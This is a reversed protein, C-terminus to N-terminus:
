DFGFYTQGLFKAHLDKMLKVEFDVTNVIFYADREAVMTGPADKSINPTIVVGGIPIGKYKPMQYRRFIYARFQNKVKDASNYFDIKLNKYDISSKSYYSSSLSNQVKSKYSGKVLSSINIKFLLEGYKQYKAYLDEATLSNEIRFSRQDVIPGTDIGEDILHLTVGSFEEGNLIPHASTYMGRYKPLLSFHINFLERSLFNRVPIIRSCELSILLLGEKCALYTLDVIPYGEKTIFKRFSPEYLDIGDDEENPMCVIDEDPFTKKLYILCNIAISNKGAICIM